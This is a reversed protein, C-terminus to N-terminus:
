ALHHNVSRQKLIKGPKQSELSLRDSNQNRWDEVARNKVTLHDESNQPVVHASSEWKFFSVVSCSANLQIESM